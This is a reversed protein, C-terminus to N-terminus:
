LMLIKSYLDFTMKRCLPIQGLHRYIDLCIEAVIDHLLRVHSFSITCRVPAGLQGSFM